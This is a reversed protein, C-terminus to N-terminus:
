CVTSAIGLRDLFATFDSGSGLIGPVGTWVTSLPLGTDPDTIASAVNRLYYALSPTAGASFSSGSVGSDVNLYAIAQESLMKANAVAWATSGLM